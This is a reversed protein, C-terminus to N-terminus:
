ANGAPVPAREVTGGTTRRQEARQLGAVFMSNDFWGAFARVLRSPGILRAGGDLQLERLSVKGVLWRQM